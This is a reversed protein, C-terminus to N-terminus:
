YALLASLSPFALIPPQATVSGVALVTEGAIHRTTPPSPAPICIALQFRIPLCLGRKIRWGVRMRFSAGAQPLTAVTNDTALPAGPTATDSSQYIRYNAQDVKVQSSSATPMLAETPRTLWQVAVIVGIGLVLLCVAAYVLVARKRQIRLGFQESDSEM